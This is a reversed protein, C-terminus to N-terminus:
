QNQNRPQNQNQHQDRNLRNWRLQEVRLAVKIMEKYSAYTQPALLECIDNNLVIDMQVMMEWPNDYVVTHHRALRRFISDFENNLFEHRKRLQYEPSLLHKSFLRKFTPWTMLFNSPRFNKVSKWWFITNGQLFYGATNVWEAAPCKMGELTDKM